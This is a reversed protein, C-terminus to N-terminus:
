RWNEITNNVNAALFGEDGTLLDAAGWKLKIHNGAVTSNKITLEGDNMIGAADSAENGTITCGTITVLGKIHIGGGNRVAINGKVLSDILDLTSGCCLKIGGGRFATTNNEITSGIITVKGSGSKIGGGSGRTKNGGQGDATNFSISSNIINLSGSSAIGGGTSAITIGGSYNYATGWEDYRYGVNDQTIEPPIYPGVWTSYGGPNQYLAQLNPPFAGIDGVYGFRRRSGRHVHIVRLRKAGSNDAPKLISRLQIM